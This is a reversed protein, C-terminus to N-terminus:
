ELCKIIKEEKSMEQKMVELSSPSNIQVFQLANILGYLSTPLVM